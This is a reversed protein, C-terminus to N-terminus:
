FSSPYALCFFPMFYNSSNKIKGSKISSDLLFLFLFTRINPRCAIPLLRLSFRSNKVKSEDGGHSQITLASQTVAVMNDQKTQTGYANANDFQFHRVPVRPM